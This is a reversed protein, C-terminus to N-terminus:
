KTKEIAYIGQIQTGTLAKNYIRIDDLSGKFYGVGWQSPDDAASIGTLTNPMEQGIAFTQPNSLTNITGSVNTWSYILAGDGYFDEEGDKLTVALQHWENIPLGNVNWDRDYYTASGNKFTFFPRSGDQIQFKYGEWWNQSIIYNNAWTTDVKVWLSITIESPNLVAQFPVEIHGGKIFHLAQNANGYRDTTWQPILGSGAISSHGAVLTGTLHNSSADAVTTGSGESFTWQAILNEQAIPVIAKSRFLSLAAALNAVANNIDTQTSSADNFIAQVATVTTQLSAKSGAQYQGAAVGEVANTLLTTAVTLSDTLATKDVKATSSDKKCSSFTIGAIISVAFLFYVTKSIQKRM